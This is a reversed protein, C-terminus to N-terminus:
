LPAGRYVLSSSLSAIATWFFFSAMESTGGEVAGKFEAHGSMKVMGWKFFFVFKTTLFFVFKPVV